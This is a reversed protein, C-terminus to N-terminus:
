LLVVGTDDDYLDSFMHVENGRILSKYNPITFNWNANQVNCIVKKEQMQTLLLPWKETIPSDTLILISEKDVIFNLKNVKLTYGWIM